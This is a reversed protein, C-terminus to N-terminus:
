MGRRDAEDGGREVLGAEALRDVVRTIGSPTLLPTL